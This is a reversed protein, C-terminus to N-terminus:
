LIVSLNSPFSYMISMFVPSIPVYTSLNALISPSEDSQITCPLVIIPYLPVSSKNCFTTTGLITFLSSPVSTFIVFTLKDLIFKSPVNVNALPNSIFEFVNDFQLVTTFITVPSLTLIFIPLVNEFHVFNSFTDIPLFAM